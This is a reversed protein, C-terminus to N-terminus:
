LLGLARAEILAPEANAAVRARLVAWRPDSERVRALLPMHDMWALDVFGNQVLEEILALAAEDRGLALLAEARIQDLLTRLNRQKAPASPLADALTPDMSEVRVISRLLGFVMGPITRTREDLPTDWSPDRTGRWLAYRAMFMARPGPAAAAGLELAADCEDWRGLLAYARATEWALETTTPDLLRAREFFALAAEIAGHELFVRGLLDYARALSPSADLAGRLARIMGAHDYEVWRVTALAIWAEGFHPAMAVVREAAERAAILNVETPGPKLFVMRAQLLAWGSLITPDDPALARAEEMLAVAPEILTWVHWGARMVARARLYASIAAGNTAPRRAPTSVITSLAEAIAHAMEDTVSLLDATQCEFRRAWLQFGQQASIVRASVRLKDGSRRLSGTVVAAVGLERGAAAPDDQNRLAATVGHPRVRMRDTMSLADILESTLGDALSAIEPDGDARLPLVAVTMDTAAPARGVRTSPRASAQATFSASLSAVAQELAEVMAAGTAFRGAPDRAMARTVVAAVSSPVGPREAAADPPDKRLRAIAVAFPETGPWAPAGTLLEYAIEGLAYIDARGDINSRGEVQEPAMYAPTGVQGQQKTLRAAEPGAIARAIGFDTMVVRGDSAVLVNEPKLDRHIIQARHAADLGAAIARVIEVTRALSQAGEREILDALSEGDVLEMTLFKDGGHEGIDFVRAVNPHTVRRALKVEHRFREILGPRAALEHHLVKLAISEDLELDRARYVTGMGGTGIMRLIEYRGALRVPEAGEGPPLTMARATPAIEDDSLGPDPDVITKDASM